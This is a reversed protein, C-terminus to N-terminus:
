NWGEQLPAADKVERFDCTGYKDWQFRLKGIPYGYNPLQAKAFLDTIPDHFLNFPYLPGWPGWNSNLPKHRYLIM